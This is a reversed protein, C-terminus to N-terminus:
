LEGTEGYGVVARFGTVLTVEILILIYVRRPLRRLAYNEACGRWAGAGTFASDRLRDVVINPVLQAARM